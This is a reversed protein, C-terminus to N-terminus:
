RRALVHAVAGHLKELGGLGAIELLFSWGVLEAGLARALRGAARPPAEPRWCTTWSWCGAGAPCATATASSRTRRRVRARVDRGGREWPLKGPKRAPVFGAGLQDGGAGGLIFGRAEIGLVHTM